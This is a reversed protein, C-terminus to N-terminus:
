RDKLSSITEPASVGTPQVVPMDATAIQLLSQDPEYLKTMAEQLLNQVSLSNYITSGELASVAHIVGQWDRNKEAAIARDFQTAQQTWRRRLELARDYIQNGPPITRIMALAPKVQAQQWQNTARQLLEQSWDEQLRQAMSYHQSNKPIAAVIAVAQVFEERTALAQAQNLQKAYVAEINNPLRDSAHSGWQLNLLRDPFNFGMFLSAKQLRHHKIGSIQNPAKVTKDTSADGPDPSSNQAAAHAWGSLVIASCVITGSKLIQQNM